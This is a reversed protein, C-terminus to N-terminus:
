ARQVSERTPKVDVDMANKKKALGDQEVKDQLALMAEMEDDMEEDSDDVEDDFIGNKVTKKPAVVKKPAAVAKKVAPAAKRKASPNMDAFLGGLQGM